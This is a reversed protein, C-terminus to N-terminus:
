ARPCRTEPLNGAGVTGVQGIGLGADAGPADLGAAVQADGRRRAKPPAVHRRQHGLKALQVGLDGDGQVQAVAHHVNGALAKVAGHAHAVHRVRRQHAHAHGVVAAQAHGRRGVQLAMARRLRRGIQRAEMAQRQGAIGGLGPAPGELM